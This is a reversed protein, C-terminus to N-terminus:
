RTVRAWHRKPRQPATAPSPVESRTQARIFEDLVATVGASRVISMPPAGALRKFARRLAGGTSYGVRFAADDVTTGPSELMRTAQLVRGWLLLRRPSPLDHVRLERGLRGVTNGMAHALDAVRPDTEANEVAWSLCDLAFAPLRGDLARVVGTATSRALARDIAGRIATRSEQGTAQMVGDVQLRGLDFLDEERGQFDSYIVIALDSHKRRFRQLQSFSIPRFPDYPDIVCLRVPRRMVLRSLHRWGASQIVHDRDDLASAFRASAAADPVMLALIAM